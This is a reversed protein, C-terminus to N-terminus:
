NEYVTWADATMSEKATWYRCLSVVKNTQYWIWEGFYTRKGFPQSVRLSSMQLSLEWTEFSSQEVAPKM